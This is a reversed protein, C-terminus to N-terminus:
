QQKNESLHIIYIYLIRSNGSEGGGKLVKLQSHRELPQWLLQYYYFNIVGQGVAM